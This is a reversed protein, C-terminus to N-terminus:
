LGGHLQERVSSPRACARPTPVFCLPQLRGRERRYGLVRREVRLQRDMAMTDPKKSLISTARAQLMPTPMMFDLPGGPVPVESVM